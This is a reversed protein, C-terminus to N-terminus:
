SGKITKKLKHWFSKKERTSEKIQQRQMLPRSMATVPAARGINGSRGIEPGPTSAEELLEEFIIWTGDPIITRITVCRGFASKREATEERAMSALWVIGFCPDMQFKTISVLEGPSLVHSTASTDAQRSKDQSGTLAEQEDQLENHHGWDRDSRGDKWTDEFRKLVTRFNSVLADIPDAYNAFTHLDQHDETYKLCHARRLLASPTPSESDVSFTVKSVSCTKSVLM